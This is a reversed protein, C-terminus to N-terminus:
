YLFVATKVQLLTETNAHKTLRSCTKADFLYEILAFINALLISFESSSNSLLSHSLIGITVFITIHRLQQPRGELQCFQELM